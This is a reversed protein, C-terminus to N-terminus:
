AWMPASAGALKVTTFLSNWATGAWVWGTTKSFGSETGGYTPDDTGLWTNVSGMSSYAMIQFVFDNEMQGGVSVLHGTTLNGAVGAVGPHGGRHGVPHRQIQPPQDVAGAAPKGAEAPPALGPELSSLRAEVRLLM